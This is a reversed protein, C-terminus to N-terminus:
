LEKGERDLPIFWTWPGVEARWVDTNAETRVKEVLTADGPERLVPPIVVCSGSALAERLTERLGPAATDLAVGIALAADATACGFTFTAKRDEAHAAPLAFAAILLLIALPWEGTRNDYAM